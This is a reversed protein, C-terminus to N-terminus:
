SNESQGELIANRLEQFDEVDDEDAESIAEDILRLADERRGQGALMLSQLEVFEYHDVSEDESIRQLMPEVEAYRGQDVLNTALVYHLHDAEPDLQLLRRYHGEAESYNGRSDNILGLFYIAAANEPNSQLMQHSLAIAEDHRDEEFLQMLHRADATTEDGDEDEVDEDSFEVDTSDLDDMDMEGDNEAMLPEERTISQANVMNDIWEAVEPDDAVDEAPIVFVRDTNVANIHQTLHIIHYAEESYENEKHEAEYPKLIEGDAFSEYLEGFGYKNVEFETETVKDVHTIRRKGYTEGGMNMVHIDYKTTPNTHRYHIKSWNKQESQEFM